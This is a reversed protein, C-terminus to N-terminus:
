NFPVSDFHSEVIKGILIPDGFHFNYVLEKGGFGEEVFALLIERTFTETTTILLFGEEVDECAWAGLVALLM